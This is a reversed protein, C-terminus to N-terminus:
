NFIELYKNLEIKKFELDIFRNKFHHLIDKLYFNDVKFFNKYVCTKVLRGDQYVDLTKGVM